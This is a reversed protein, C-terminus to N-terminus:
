FITSVSSVLSILSTSAEFISSVVFVSHYIINIQYFNVLQQTNAIISIYTSKQTYSYM